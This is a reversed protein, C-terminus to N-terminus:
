FRLLLAIRHSLEKLEKGYTVVAYDLKYDGHSFGVGASFGSLADQKNRDALFKYGARLVAFENVQKEAGAALSLNNDRPIDVELGFIVDERLRHSSGIKVIFPLPEGDIDPGINQLVFSVKNAKPGFPLEYLIGLDMAVGHASEDAIKRSIVKVAAGGSIDYRMPFGCGISFAFFRANHTGSQGLPEGGPGEGVNPIDGADIIALGAGLSGFPKFQQAFGFYEYRTDLLWETHTFSFERTKLNVLGAPNWYLAFADDAIAGYAEGMAAPRAGVGIKLFNAATTGTEDSAAWSQGTLYIAVLAVLSWIKISKKM